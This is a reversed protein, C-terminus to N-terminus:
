PQQTPLSGTGQIPSEGSVANSEIKYIIAIDARNNLNQHEPTDNPFIPKYEGCGAVTIREPSIGKDILYSAIIWARSWSLEWNNTYKADTPPTNDTHGVIKIENDVSKLMIIITDLVSYGEQQLIATGPTFLLKESLSILVGEVNTQVNVGSTLNNKSLMESIQGAIQVAAPPKKPMGPVTIPDPVGNTDSGAAQNITTDITKQAAGGGGTSFAAKFSDALKKYKVIDTQGLSYLVVFLVMLLTIFDAYSVLWRNPDGGEEGGGGHSM